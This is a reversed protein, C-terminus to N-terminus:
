DPVEDARDFDRRAIWIAKGTAGGFRVNSGGRRASPLRMAEFQWRDGEFATGRFLGRVSIPLVWLGDGDGMRPVPRGRQDNKANARVPRLGYRQLVRSAFDADTSDALNPESYARELLTGIQEQRTTGDYQVLQTMLLQLMRTPGDDDAVEDARRVFEPVAAVGQDLAERETPPADQTLTWWGALIAGLQDMERPACGARGLADRFVALSARWRDFNALARGWLSPGLKRMDAILEDMEARNDEGGGPKQLEVLTIRSRHTPKMDPPAVSAMTVVGVLNISRVGGDATGRHGKTGEGGTAALLMDMLAQAGSQDAKDGSEDIFIPMAHGNVAGEVGAKSTDSTYHHLPACARMLQLLMSKGSGGGGTLYGNSRWEAAAGFYGTGILGLVVIAGGPDKFSWLRQMDAQLRQAIEASCPRVPRPTKPGAAWVYGGLKQGAPHTEALGHSAGSGIFLVEDGAHVVPLGKDDHWIGAQRFVVHDGFIGAQRALDMLFEAAVATYFGETTTEVVTEGAVVTKSTKKRPFQELLWTTDGLFLAALDSRSGLQRASLRRRQGAVDLFVFQGDIHGLAVIPCGRPGAPRDVPARRRRRRAEDLPIPGDSV